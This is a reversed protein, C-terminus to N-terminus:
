YKKDSLRFDIPVSYAVRVAVGNQKGPTWKKSTNKILRLAEEDCGDGIGRSIKVQTLKGSREVIFSVIVKGQTDDKIAVPPYIMNTQIYDLFADTRGTFHPSEEVSTYIFNRRPPGIPMIDPAHYNIQVILNLKVRVPKGAILGPSWRPSHKLLKIAQIICEDYGLYRPATIKDLKGNKEIVCTLEIDCYYDKSHDDYPSSTYLKFAKEGGPFEPQKETKDYIKSGGEYKISQALSWQCIPFFLILLFVTRKV